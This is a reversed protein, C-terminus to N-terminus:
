RCSRSGGFVLKRARGRQNKVLGRKGDLDGVGFFVLIAGVVLLAIITQLRGSPRVVTTHFLSLILILAAAAASGSTIPLGDILPQSADWQSLLTDAYARRWASRGRDGCLIGRLVFDMWQPIGM